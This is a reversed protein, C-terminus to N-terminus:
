ISKSMSTHTETPSIVNGAPQQIGFSLEMPQLFKPDPQTEIEVNSPWVVPDYVGAGTAAGPQQLLMQENVNSVYPPNSYYGYPAYDVPPQYSYDYPDNVEMSSKLHESSENHVTSRKKIKRVPNEQRYLQHWLGILILQLGLYFSFACVGMGAVKATNTSADPYDSFLISMFILTNKNLKSQGYFVGTVILFVAALLTFIGM